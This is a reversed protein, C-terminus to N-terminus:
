PTTGAASLVVSPNESSAAIKFITHLGADGDNEVLYSALCTAFPESRCGAILRAADSSSFVPNQIQIHWLLQATRADIPNRTRGTLTSIFARALPEGLLRTVSAFHLMVRPSPDKAAM